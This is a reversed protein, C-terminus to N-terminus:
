ESVEKCNNIYGTIKNAQDATAAASFLTGGKVKLNMVEARYGSLPVLQGNETHLNATGATTEYTGNLGDFLYGKKGTLTITYGRGDLHGAFVFNAPLKDTDITLDDSLIFYDGWNDGDVMAAKFKTLWDAETVYQKTYESGDTITETSTGIRYARQWSGGANSLRLENENDLGYSGDKGEQTQWVEAGSTQYDIKERTVRLYVVTFYNADLDVEVTKRYTLGNKLQVVFTVSNTEDATVGEAEDYMVLDPDTYTPRVIIDYCPAQGYNIQRYGYSDTTGAAEAAKYGADAAAWGETTPYLYTGKKKDYYALFDNYITKMNSDVSGLKGILHPLIKRATTWQPSIDDYVYNLVKVNEMYINSLETNLEPDILVHGVVRALRHTFPLRVYGVTAQIQHDPPMCLYSDLVGYYDQEDSQDCEHEDVNNALGTPIYFGHFVHGGNGLWTAPTETGKINFSYYTSDGEQTKDAELKLVATKKTSADSARYYTIDLGDKLADKLTADEEAKVSRTVSTSVEDGCTVSGVKIVQSEDYAVQSSEVGSNSESCSAFACAALM